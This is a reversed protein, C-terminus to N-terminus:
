KKENAGDNLSTVQIEKISDEHRVLLKEREGVALTVSGRVRILSNGIQVYYTKQERNYFLKVPLNRFPLHEDTM